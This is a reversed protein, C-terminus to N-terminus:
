PASDAGLFGAADFDALMRWEPVDLLTAALTSVGERVGAELDDFTPVREIGFEAAETAGGQAADESGGAPEAAVVAVSRPQGGAPEPRVAIVAIAAAVAVAAAVIGSPWWASRGARGARPEAHRIVAPADANVPLRRLIRGHLAESFLPRERAAEQRLLDALGDPECPNVRDTMADGRMENM